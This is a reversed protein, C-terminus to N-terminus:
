VVKKDLERVIDALSELLKRAFSPAAELVGNLQRRTIIAVQMDTVAVVSATRPGKSLLALEGFADGPGVSALKRGGRSVRASGALVVYMTNGEEGETIIQTGMHVPIIKATKAIARLEKKGCSSFIRVSALHATVQEAVRRSNAAQKELDRTRERVLAQSIFPNGVTAGLTL